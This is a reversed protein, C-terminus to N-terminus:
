FYYYGKKFWLCIMTIMTCDDFFRLNLIKVNKKSFDGNEIGSMAPCRSRVSLHLMCDNESLEQYTIKSIALAVHCESMSTAKSCALGMCSQVPRSLLVWTKTHHCWAQKHKGLQSSVVMDSTSSACSLVTCSWANQSADWAGYLNLHPPVKLFEIRKGLSHPNQFVQADDRTQGGHSRRALLLQPTAPTQNWNLRAAQAQTPHVEDTVVHQSENANASLDIVHHSGSASADFHHQSGLLGTWSMSSHLSRKWVYTQGQFQSEQHSSQLASSDSSRSNHTNCCDILWPEEM